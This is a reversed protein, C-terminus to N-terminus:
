RLGACVRVQEHACQGCREGTDDEDGHTLALRALLVRWRRERACLVGWPAASVRAAGKPREWARQPSRHDVSPGRHGARVRRHYSFAYFVAGIVYLGGGIVYSCAEIFLGARAYM